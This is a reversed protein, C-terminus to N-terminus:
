MATHEQAFSCRLAHALADGPLHSCHERRSAMPWMAALAMNGMFLVHSYVSGTCTVLWHSLAEKKEQTM